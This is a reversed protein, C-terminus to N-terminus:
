RHFTFLFAINLTMIINNMDMFIVDNIMFIKHQLFKATYINYFYKLTYVSYMNYAHILQYHVIGESKRHHVVFIWIVIYGYRHKHDVAVM